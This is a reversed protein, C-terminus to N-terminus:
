SDCTVVTAGATADAADAATTGAIPHAATSADDAAEPKALMAKSFTALVSFPHTANHVRMCAWASSSALRPAWARMRVRGGSREMAM